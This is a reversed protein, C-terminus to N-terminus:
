NPVNPDTVVLQWLGFLGVVITSAAGLEASVDFAGIAQDVIGVALLALASWGFIRGVVRRVKPNKVRANATISNLDSM